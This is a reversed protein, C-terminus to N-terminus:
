VGATALERKPELFQVDNAMVATTRRAHGDEDTWQRTQLRGEVYVLSGKNLYSTVADALKRTGVNFAVVDVYEVHEVREGAANRNYSNIALAFSAVAMDAATQRTEPDRTLRGILVVKNLGAM